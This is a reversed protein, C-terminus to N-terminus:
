WSKHFTLTSLPWKEVFFACLIAHTQTKFTHTICPLFPILVRWRFPASRSMHIVRHQLHQLLAPTSLGWFQGQEGTGFQLGMLFLGRKCGCSFAIKVELAQPSSHPPVVSFGKYVARGKEWSWVRGHGARGVATQRGRAWVVPKGNRWLNVMGQGFPVSVTYEAEGPKWETHLGGYDHLCLMQIVKGTLRDKTLKRPGTLSSSSLAPPGEGKEGWESARQSVAAWGVM